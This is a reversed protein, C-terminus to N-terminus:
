PKGEYKCLEIENYKHLMMGGDRGTTPLWEEKIEKPSINYRKEKLFNRCIYHIQKGASCTEEIISIIKSKMRDSCGKITVEEGVKFKPKSMIDEKELIFTFNSCKPCLVNGTTSTTTDIEGGCQNCFERM